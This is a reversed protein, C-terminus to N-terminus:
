NKAKPQKQSLTHDYMAVDKFTKGISSISNSGIVNLEEENSYAQQSYNQVPPV